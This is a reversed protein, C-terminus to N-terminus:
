EETARDRERKGERYQRRLSSPSLEDAVDTTVVLVVSTLGLVGVTVLGLPGDFVAGAASAGPALVGLSLLLSLWLLGQLAGFARRSGAVTSGDVRATAGLNIWGYALASALASGVLLAREVPVALGMGKQLVTIALGMGGFLVVYAAYRGYPPM